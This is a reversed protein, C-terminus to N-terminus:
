KKIQCSLNGKKKERDRMEYGERRERSLFAIFETVFIFAFSFSHWVM